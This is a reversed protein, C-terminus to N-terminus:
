EFQGVGFGADLLDVLGGSAEHLAGGLEVGTGSLVLTAQEVAGEEGADPDVALVFLDGEGRWQSSIAVAALASRV